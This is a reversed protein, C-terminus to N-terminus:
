SDDTEDCRSLSRYLTDTAIDRHVLRFFSGNSGLTVFVHNRCIRSESGPDMVLTQTGDVIVAPGLVRDGTGLKELLYVKVDVRGTQEFYISTKGEVKEEGVDVFLTATIESFVSPGISDFTKGIGRVRVDDVMITKDMLFGFEHQYAEQFAKSFDFSGDLPALVM